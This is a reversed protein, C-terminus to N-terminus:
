AVCRRHEARIDNCNVTVYNKETVSIALYYKIDNTTIDEYNKNLTMLMNRTTRVYQEISKESLNELKKNAAFVQLIFTKINKSNSKM